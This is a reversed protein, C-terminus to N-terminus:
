LKGDDGELQQLHQMYIREALPIMKQYWRKDGAKNGGLLLLAERNPDFAYLVRYPQGKYPIRLEKLNGVKSGKLTDAYPRGLRPGYERLLGIHAAVVKRLDRDLSLWWAEFPESFNIRHM